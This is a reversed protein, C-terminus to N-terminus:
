SITVPASYITKVRLLSNRRFRGVNRLIRIMLFFQLNAHFVIKNKCLSELVASNNCQHELNSSIVNSTLAPPKTGQLLECRYEAEVVLMKILRGVNSGYKAWSQRLYQFDVQFQQYASTNIGNRLDRLIELINKAINIVIVASIEDADPELEAPLFNIKEALLEETSSFRRSPVPKSPLRSTSQEVQLMAELQEAAESVAKEAIKCWPSVM